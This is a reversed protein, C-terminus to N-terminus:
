IKQKELYNIVERVKQFTKEMEGKGFESPAYRAMDCDRFIDKLKSLIEENIGKPELVEDAIDITIGGVPLHFKDGLYERVTRFISGYFEETKEKKLLQRAQQIGKRAKKPAYLRRAYSVDTRIKERRNHITVVSFLILIPVIQLLLFGKNKYLYASRRKLRGPSEKIYVIDKGLIEKKLPKTVVAQPIEVIKLKEEKAKTVKIPIPGETMTRYAKEQTAFFNFTVKPIESITDMEPMLIQEFVKKNKQQKVQPEYVKFGKHSSLKPCTVTDFNGEGEIIMKVTIPDGVKVEKPEAELSFRFNGIAGSFDKSKGEEPLPLVTMRIAPSKLSLPYTEYRGFFNEFIDEDFFDGFPSSTRRRTKKVILNCKLQAPGLTFKGPRTGFIGTKFEIVDYPVGGVVERYRGPQGFKGVSFGQYSFQPYQIDRIALRNIYLKITVPITENLFAKTKKVRMKLFVRDKLEAQAGGAIETPKKESVTGQVVEVTIPRSTYTDGKYQFSVPGIQFTGTKLPILTYIHTISSSVKGNVISMRTSPGLYRSQFGNIEPLKPAPVKQTNYFTFNLQLSEGVSVRNRDVTVEFSIDKAFCDPARILLGFVLFWFGFVLILFAFNRQKKITSM